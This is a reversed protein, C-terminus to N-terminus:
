GGEAVVMAIRRADPSVALRTIDGPLDFRALERWTEGNWILLVRHSAVILSGDALYAFDESGEPMPALATIRREAFDLRKIWRREDTGPEVFAISGTADPVRQLCRGIDKALVTVEGTKRNAIHLESPERVMFLGVHTDDLWAHYGVGELMPFLIEYRSAGSALVALQQINNRDVRVVSTGDGPVPTPSYESEPTVRLPAVERTGLDHRWADAQGESDISTFLLSQDNAFAPQNDYGPRATLNRMGSVVLKGDAVGLDALWIDTGPPAAYAAPLLTQILLLAVLRIDPM